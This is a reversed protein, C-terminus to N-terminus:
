HQRGNILLDSHWQFRKLWVEVPIVIGTNVNGNTLSTTYLQPGSPSQFCIGCYYNIKVEVVYFGAVPGAVRKAVCRAVRQRDNVDVRLFRIEVVNQKHKSTGLWMLENDIKSRFFEKIKEQNPLTLYVGDAILKGTPDGQATKEERIGMYVSGGGRIKTFASIYPKSQRWCYEPDPPSLAKAQTCINESMPVTANGVNRTVMVHHGKILTLHGRNMLFQDRGKPRNWTIDDVFDNMQGYTPPVTGKSVSFRTNFDFVSYPRSSVRPLVRYLVHKADLLYREYVDQYLANDPILKLLKSDVKKDLYDINVDQDAHIMVSGGMGNLFSNIVHYFKDIPNAENPGVPRTCEEFKIELLVRDYHNGKHRQCVQCSVGAM